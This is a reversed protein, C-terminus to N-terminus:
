GRLRRAGPSLNALDGRGAGARQALAADIQDIFIDMGGDSRRQPSAQVQGGAYNYVNVSGGRSGADGGKGIPYMRGSEGPVFLERGAEGVTYAQGAAVPGGNARFLSAFGGPLSPGQAGAIPSNAAGGGFLSSALGALGGVSDSGASAAPSTGLLAALPGQGTFVAQLAAKALQKEISALVDAFSKGELIADGISDAAIQGFYRAQEATQRLAQQADMVRDKYTQWSTAAALVRSREDDDLAPDARKGKQFDERAAAEAKALAVAREREVNTAAVNELEAKATDSAKQIQNILTEVADLQETTDGGGRSAHLSPLIASQDPGRSRVKVALPAPPGQVEPNILGVARGVEQLATIQNGATLVKGIGPIAGVFDKVAGVVGTIQAYLDAAVKVVRAIVLEVNLFAEYTDLAANSIDKQIPALATAFTNSIEKLKADLQNGREIEAESIIRQGGAVSATADLQERLKGTVDVGDRMRREFDPGLFKGVLDFAALDRSSARLRDVLDLVARIKAEQGVAGTVSARDATTINGAKVNQTLRENLASSNTADKGVGIRDETAARAAALAQTVQQATLGLEKAELTARQFFTTGVGVKTAERGIKVFEEVHERAAEISASVSEFVLKAAEFALFAGLLTKLSPVQAVITGIATSTGALGSQVAAQATNSGAAAATFSRVIGELTAGEKTAAAVTDTAIKRVDAGVAAAARAANTQLGGLAAGFGNSNAAGGSLAVGISAMNGVVSAALSAMASQARSTDAQFSLTLPEAM